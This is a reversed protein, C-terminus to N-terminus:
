KGDPWTKNTFDQLPLNQSHRSSRDLEWGLEEVVKGFITFLDELALQIAHLFMITCLRCPYHKLPSLRGGCKRM